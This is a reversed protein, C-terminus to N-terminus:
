IIAAFGIAIIQGAKNRLIDVHYKRYYSGSNLMWIRVFNRILKEDDPEYQVLNIVFELNSKFKSGDVHTWLYEPGNTGNFDNDCEALKRLADFLDNRKTSEVAVLQSLIDAM